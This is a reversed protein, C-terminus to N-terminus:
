GRSARPVRAFSAVVTGAAGGAFRCARELWMYFWLRLVRDLGRVGLQQAASRAAGVGPRWPFQRLLGGLAVRGNRAQGYVVRFSRALYERSTLDCHHYVVADEAYAIREGNAAARRSMEDDSGYVFPNFLGHERFVDRSVLMNGAAVCHAEETMRRRVEPATHLSLLLNGMTETVFVNEIRGAVYRSEVLRAKRVLAELWSADATCDADLFALYEGSAALIARNRAKFPSREPEELVRAGAARAIAVTDDSSGNDVVTLEMRGAPYRQGKVSELTRAIHAAENLAPIVVTVLPAESTGTPESM